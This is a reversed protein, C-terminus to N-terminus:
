PNHFCRVVQFMRSNLPGVAERRPDAVELQQRFKSQTHRPAQIFFPPFSSQTRESRLRGREPVQAVPQATPKQAVSLISEAAHLGAAASDPAAAQQLPQYEQNTTYFEMVDRPLFNFGHCFGGAAFQFDIQLRQDFMQTHGLNEVLQAQLAYELNSARLTNQVLHAGIPENGFQRRFLSM